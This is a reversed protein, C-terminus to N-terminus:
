NLFLIFFYLLQLIVNSSYTKSGLALHPLHQHSFTSGQLLFIFLNSILRRLPLHKWRQKIGRITVKGGIQTTITVSLLTVGAHTGGNTKMKRKQKGRPICICSNPIFSANCFDWFECSLFWNSPKYNFPIIKINNQRKLGKVFSDKLGSTGSYCRNCKWCRNSPIYNMNQVNLSFFVFM